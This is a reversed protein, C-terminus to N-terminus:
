SVILGNSEVIFGTGEVHDNPVAQLSPATSTNKNQSTDVAGIISVVAAKTNRVALIGQQEDSLPATQKAAPKISRVIPVASFSLVPLIIVTAAIGVAIGKAFTQKNNM